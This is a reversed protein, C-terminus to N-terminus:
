GEQIAIAVNHIEYIRIDDAWLSADGRLLKTNGTRESRHFHVELQMQHNKPLVQGRYKWKMEHGIASIAVSGNKNDRQAFVKMAQIIAEIGLSGPMVPDQYFHCAYYWDNASNLRKAYVYGEKNIGGTDDIVVWDILRLKGKPLNEGLDTGYIPLLQLNILEESEQYWPVSSKGGDLGAQSAMIKFPFYGFTSYGKFFVEGNCNLEFAFRQIITEGSFITELLTANIQIPQNRVNAQQTFIAQGDLNRFYYDINTNHLQTGLFGSLFGCPQLAIELCISYPLEGGAQGDFYWANAPIDYEATIRSPQNFKGRQGQITKIRSILLLDGNPIRPSRRGDYIAFDRGLCKAISGTSFEQLDSIGFLAKFPIPNRHQYSEVQREILDAVHYLSAQRLELMQNHTHSVQLNHMYWWDFYRRLITERNLIQM